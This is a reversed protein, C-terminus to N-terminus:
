TKPIALVHQVFTEVSATPCDGSAARALCSYQSAPLAESLREAARQALTSNFRVSRAESREFLVGRGHQEVLTRQAIEMKKLQREMEELLLEYYSRAMAFVPRDPAGILALDFPLAVLRPKPFLKIRLTSMIGATEAESVAFSALADTLAQPLKASEGGLYESSRDFWKLPSEVLLHNSLIVLPTEKQASRLIELWTSVLVQSFEQSHQRCEEEDPPPIAGSLSRQVQRLFQRQDFDKLIDAEDALMELAYKVEDALAEAGTAATELFLAKRVVPFAVEDALRCLDDFRQANREVEEPRHILDDPIPTRPM